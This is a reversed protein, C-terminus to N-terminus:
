PWRSKDIPNPRDNAAADITVATDEPTSASDDVAVPPDNPPTVTITVTAINSDVLGDNARYTFSDTGTFGGNPTYTVTNDLNFTATGTTPQTMNTVTLTDGDVDVDNALVAMTM